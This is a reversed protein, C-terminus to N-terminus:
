LTMEMLYVPRRGWRDTLSGWVVRPLLSGLTYTAVILGGAAATRAGAQLAVIPLTPTLMFTNIYVFM